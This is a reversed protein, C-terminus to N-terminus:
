LFRALICKERVGNHRKQDIFACSVVEQKQRTNATSAAETPAEENNLM